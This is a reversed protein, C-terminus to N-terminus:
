YRFPLVDVVFQVADKRIGELVIVKLYETESKLVILATLDNSM